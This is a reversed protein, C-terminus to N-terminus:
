DEEEEEEEEVVLTGRCKSPDCLNHRIWGPVEELSIGLGDLGAGMKVGMNGLWVDEVEPPFWERLTAIDGILRGYQFGMLVYGWFHRVQNSGDQFWRYFCSDAAYGWGLYLDLDASRTGTIVWESVDTLVLGLDEVFTEEDNNFRGFYIDRFEAFAYEILQV